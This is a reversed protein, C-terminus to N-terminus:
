VFAFSNTKSLTLINTSSFGRKIRDFKQRCKVSVKNLENLRVPPTNRVEFNIANLVDYTGFFDQFYILKMRKTQTKLIFTELLLSLKLNWTSSLTKTSNSMELGGTSCFQTKVYVTPTANGCHYGTNILVCVQKYWLLHPELIQFSHDHMCFQVAKHKSIRRSTVNKQFCSIQGGM